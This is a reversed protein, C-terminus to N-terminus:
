TRQFGRWIWYAVAIVLAGALWIIALEELIFSRDIPYVQDVHTDVNEICRWYDFGPQESPKGTCYTDWLGTRITKQHEFEKLGLYMYGGGFWVVSTVIWLRAWGGLKM